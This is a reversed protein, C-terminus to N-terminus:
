LKHCKRIIQTLALIRRISLLVGKLFKRIPGRLQGLFLLLVLFWFDPFAGFFPFGGWAEGNLGRSGWRDARSCLISHQWIDSFTAFQQLSDHSKKKGDEELVTGKEIEGVCGKPLVRVLSVRMGPKPAFDELFKTESLPRNRTCIKRHSQLFSCLVMKARKPLLFKPCYGAAGAEGPGKPKSSLKTARAIRLAIRAFRNARIM